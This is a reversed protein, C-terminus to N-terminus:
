RPEGESWLHGVINGLGMNVNYLETWVILNCTHNCGWTKPVGWCCVGQGSINQWPQLAATRWYRLGEPTHCIVPYHMIYKKFRRSATLWHRTTIDWVSLCLCFSPTGMHLLNWPNQSTIGRPSLYEPDSKFTLICPSEPPLSLIQPPITDTM